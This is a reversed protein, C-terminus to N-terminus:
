GIFVPEEAYRLDVRRPRGLLAFGITLPGLRGALMTASILIKGPTSLSPTIGTSLGVTGLASTVEFLVSLFPQNESAALLLTGAAILATALLGIALARRVIDEPLRRRFVVTDQAGKLLAVVTALAAGLTTTKIGGATGGPSAGVFMLVVIWFLSTATMSGVDVSNFGTTTAASLAQFTAAALREGWGRGLTSEPEVLLFLVSGATVLPAWVAFALKTHLSVRRPRQGARRAELYRTLDRLVFFGVAGAITVVAITLNVVLSERYAVYGSAFLSFGATCFASVSHFLGLYLAQAAPFDRMWYAGLAEFLLTYRFTSRVFARLESGSVGAISEQLTMRSTVSLSRGIILAVFAVFAMYGLGGVQFLVLIVLQGFLSYYSGTDVVVLGTTTVASTATFLADVFPQRTGSRTAIPLSLLLAGALVLSAFGFLLSQAPSIRFRARAAPAPPRVTGRLM